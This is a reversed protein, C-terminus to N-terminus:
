HSWPFDRSPLVKAFVLTTAVVFFFQFIIAAIIGLYYMKTGNRLVEKTYDIPDTSWVFFLPKHTSVKYKAEAQQVALRYYPREADNMLRLGGKYRQDMYGKCHFDAGSTSCCNKGIVWFDLNTKSTTSPSVVPAVCYTDTEKFAMSKTVDVYSSETFAVRGADVLQQGLYAAPNVNTYTNLSQLEFAERMSGFNIGGLIIAIVIAFFSAISLFRYWMPEYEEEEDFESAYGLQRYHAQSLCSFCGTTLVLILAVTSYCLLPQHYHFGFSMLAFVVTFLLWPVLVSLIIATGNLRKRNSRMIAHYRHFWPLRMSLGFPPPEPFERPMGLEYPMQKKGQMLLGQAGGYGYM